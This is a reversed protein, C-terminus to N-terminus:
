EEEGKWPDPLPMWYLIKPVTGVFLQVIDWRGDYYEAVSTVISDYLIDDFKLTVLYTGTEEPLRETVPIWRQMLRQYDKLWEALQRFDLCGQLSGHTREFEANHEFITIQEDLTM